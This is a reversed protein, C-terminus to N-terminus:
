RIIWFSDMKKYNLYKIILLIQNDLSCECLSSYDLYEYLNYYTINKELTINVTDCLTYTYVNFLQDCPYIICGSVGIVFILISIIVINM